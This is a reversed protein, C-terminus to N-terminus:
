LTSWNYALNQKTKNQKPSPPPPKKIATRTNLKIWPDLHQSIWSCCVLVQWCRPSGVTDVPLFCLCDQIKCLWLNQGPTPTPRAKMVEMGLCCHRAVKLNSMEGQSRLPPVILGWSYATSTIITKFNVVQPPPMNFLKGSNESTRRRRRVKLSSETTKMWHELVM